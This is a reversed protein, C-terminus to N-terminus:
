IYTQSLGRNADCDIMVLWIDNVEFFLKILKLFRTVTLTEPSVMWFCFVVSARPAKCLELGDMGEMMIDSIILDIDEKELVKLASRGDVATFVQFSDALQGGAPAYKFANSLLNM